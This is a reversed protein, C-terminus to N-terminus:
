ISINKKEYMVVYAIDGIKKNDVMVLGAKKGLSRLEDLSFQESTNAGLSEDFVVKTGEIKKIPANIMKYIKMREDFATEAYSSLIFIGNNKLVRSVELLSIDKLNDLNYFVNMMIVTDFTEDEFPLKDASAVVVKVTDIKEFRKRADDVAKQDNDIGYVSQTKQLISQMSRGEGCGIDLVFSDSEIHTSLYEKEADFLQQYAPTPAELVQEWYGINTNEREPLQSM